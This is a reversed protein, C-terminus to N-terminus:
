AIQQSVIRWYMQVASDVQGAPVTWKPHPGIVFTRRCEIDV